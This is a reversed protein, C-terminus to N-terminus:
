AIIKKGTRLPRGKRLYGELTMRANAARKLESIINKVSSPKVNSFHKALKVVDTQGEQILKVLEHIKEDSWKQYGLPYAKFLFELNTYKFPKPKITKM